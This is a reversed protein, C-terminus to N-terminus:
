ILVSSTYWYYWVKLLKWCTCFFTFEFVDAFILKTFICTYQLTLLGCAVGWETCILRWWLMYLMLPLLGRFMGSLLLLLLQLLKVALQQGTDFVYFDGLWGCDNSLGGFLYLKSDVATITAASRPPPVNGAGSIKVLTENDTCLRIYVYYVSIPILYVIWWMQCSIFCLFKHLMCVLGVGYM